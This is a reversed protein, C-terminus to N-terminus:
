PKPSGMVHAMEADGPLGQKVVVNGEADQYFTAPTGGLGLSRMVDTNAQVQSTLTSSPTPAPSIGGQEYAHNHRALAAGPDEDALMAVAKPLSDPRLMAVLVHRVQVKGSEVWPQTAQWFRHCFPCNADTFTYIVRPADNDGDAIWHSNELTDWAGAYQASMAANLPAESLDNGQADLLTGVLAHQGDKTVFVTLQRGQVSMVYGSLDGPAEFTDVVSLGRTTLATIPAPLADDAAVPLSLVWLLGYFLARM